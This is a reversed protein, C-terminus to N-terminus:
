GEVGGLKVVDGLKALLYETDEANLGEYQTLVREIVRARYRELAHESGDMETEHVVDLAVRVAPLLQLPMGAKEYLTKLGLRGADHILIRANVLPVNAMVAMAAEFFNVEGVCLARIIISPTLRKNHYMQAVLKEIDQESSGSALSLVARERSQLVLDSAASSSMEHHSVLYNKLQESVVAALRETVIVPLTERKVMAEKVTDSAEFRDMAKGLSPEAIHATTNKMLVEVTKESAKTILVESVEESVNTRGAIAAQKTESGKEVIAVLDADTLVSSNQLIPLAVSEVDNALKVAVDHPLRTAGRLNQALSQRVSVEIDKAMLRVVDHALSLEGESLKPSDIELALKGAVEARVTPSPEKLLREVDSQTLQSSM